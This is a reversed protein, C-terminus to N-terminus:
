PPGCTGRWRVPDAQAQRCVDLLDAAGYGSPMRRTGGKELSRIVADVAQSMTMGSGNGRTQAVYHVLVTLIGDPLSRYPRTTSVGHGACGDPGGSFPFPYPLGELLTNFTGHNIRARLHVTRFTSTYVHTPEGDITFTVTFQYDANTSCDDAVITVQSPPSCQYKVVGFPRKDRPPVERWTAADAKLLYTDTTRYRQVQNTHCGTPSEVVSKPIVPCTIGLEQYLATPAAVKSPTGSVSLVHLVKKSLLTLTFRAAGWSTLRADSNTVVTSQRPGCDTGM